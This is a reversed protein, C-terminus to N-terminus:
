LLIALNCFFNIKLFLHDGEHTFTPSSSLLQTIPTWTAHVCRGITYHIANPLCSHNILAFQPWLGVHPVVRDVDRSGGEGSSRGGKQQRQADSLRCAAAVPDDFKDGFANLAVVAALTDDARESSTPTSQSSPEDTMGPEGGVGGSLLANLRSIGEASRGTTGGGGRYLEKLWRERIARPYQSPPRGDVPPMLQPVLMMPDPLDEQGRSGSLFALPQCALLIEGISVRRTTVLGRGKGARACPLFTLM